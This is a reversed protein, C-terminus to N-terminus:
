KQRRKQFRNSPQWAHESCKSSGARQPRNDSSGPSGSWSISSLGASWLVDLSCCWSRLSSLPTGPGARCTACALFPWYRQPSPRGTPAGVSPDLTHPPGGPSRSSPLTSGPGTAESKLTKAIRRLDASWAIDPVSPIGTGANRAFSNVCIRRGKLGTQLLPGSRKPGPAKRVDVPQDPLGKGRGM